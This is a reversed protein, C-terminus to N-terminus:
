GCVYTTAGFGLKQGGRERCASGAQGDQGRRAQSVACQDVSVIESRDYSLLTEIYARYAYTNTSSTILTGNLSVDVQSFMSHLFNNVPGVTDAAVLNDGNDKKIKARVHAYNNAFDIYDYGSATVDFEIPAGGIISSIPNYEMYSGSEISNQTSPVAFSGIRMERM